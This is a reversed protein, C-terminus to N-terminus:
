LATGLGALAVAGLRVGVDIRRVVSAGAHATLVVPGLVIAAVPGVDVDTTPEHSAQLRAVDTGLDFRWRGDVGLQLRRSMSMPRILAARVEGDRERGDPDQGYAANAIVLTNGIRRGLAVVAEIEGEPETFGEARYTISLAGDLGHRRESLVQLRAGVSPRLRRSTDGLEAAGRVALPGWLQVEAHSESVAGRASDYGGYSAAVAATSGVRPTLTFPLLGGDAVARRAPPTTVADDVQDIADRDVTPTEALAPRAMLVLSLVLVRRNV